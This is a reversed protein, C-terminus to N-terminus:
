CLLSISTMFDNISKSYQYYYIQMRVTLNPLKFEKIKVCEKTPSRQICDQFIIKKVWCKKTKVKFLSGFLIM